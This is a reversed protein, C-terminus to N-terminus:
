IKDSCRQYRRRPPSRGSPSSDRRIPTPSRSKKRRGERIDDEKQKRALNKSKYYEYLGLREWGESDRPNDHSPPGYFAEVALLLKESPPCPPPLRIAKPDLPKYNDDEPKVLPVMLGAPLEYYPLTPILDKENPPPFGPPPRSLDPISPGGQDPTPGLNQQEGFAPQIGIAAEGQGQMLLNQDSINRIAAAVAAAQQQQIQAQQLIGRQIQEDIQQLYFIKDM